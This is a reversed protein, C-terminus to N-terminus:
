IYPTGNYTGKKEEPIPQDADVFRGRFDAVMNTAPEIIGREGDMHGLINQPAGRRNKDTTLWMVNTEKDRNGVVYCLDMMFPFSKIEMSDTAVPIHKPNARANDTNIQHLLIIRHKRKKAVMSVEDIMNQAVIRVGSSEGSVGRLACYRTVMPWFWDIVVYGLEVGSDELSQITEDVDQVGNRGRGGKTTFDVVHVYPGISKALERAREKDEKCWTRPRNNRFFDISRDDFMRCFLRESVDNTIPQEYLFLLSHIGRKAQAVVLDTGTLTKGGGTPMLMGILSGAVHGGNSLQDIWRIGTPLQVQEPMFRIPDLLPHEIVIEDNSTARGLDSTTVTMARLLDEHNGVKSLRSSMILKLALLLAAELYKGAVDQSIDEPTIDKMGDLLLLLPELVGASGTNVNRSRIEEKLHFLSIDKDVGVVEHLRRLADWCIAHGPFKMTDFLDLQAARTIAMSRSVKSRVLCTLLADADATEM